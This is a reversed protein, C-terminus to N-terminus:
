VAGAVMALVWITVTVAVVAAVGLLVALAFTVKFGGTVGGDDPLVEEFWLVLVIVSGISTIPAFPVVAEATNLM